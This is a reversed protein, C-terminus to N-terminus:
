ATAAKETARRHTCFCCGTQENIPGLADAQGLTAKAKPITHHFFAAADEHTEMEM